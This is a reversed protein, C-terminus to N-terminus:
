CHATQQPPEPHTQDNNQVTSDANDEHDSSPIRHIEVLTTAHGNTQPPLQPVTEHFIEEEDSDVLSLIDGRDDELHSFGLGICIRDRKTYITVGIIVGIMMILVSVFVGVVAGENGASTKVTLYVELEKPGVPNISYCYYVGEDEKTVNVITLKYNPNHDSVIYKSTTNIIKKDKQMWVTKAPPLSESETCSLTISSGVLATVMPDGLPYPSKLKFSCSNEVGTVHHGICKVEEGSHLIFGNVHVELHETEKSTSNVTPGKAIVHEELVEHWDLTPVPYGGYWSCIFLVDLPENVIKWSCEPHREPAYYVLLEQSKNVTTKSLANQSTCTYTGQDSPQINNISFELFSKNGTARDDSDLALDKVTWALNQSPVSESSCNFHVDAGKKVYLTGNPLLAAPQIALSVSTPGEAVRLQTNSLTQWSSGDKTQSECEYRGEDIFQLDTIWLSGNNSISLHESPKLPNQTAVVAGYKKWRYLLSSANVPQDLCQLTTNGGKEGTVYRQVQEESVTHHSLLLLHLFIVSTIMEPSYPYGM